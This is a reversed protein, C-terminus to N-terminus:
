QKMEEEEEEKSENPTDIELSNFSQIFYEVNIAESPPTTKTTPPTRKKPFFRFFTKPNSSSEGTNKKMDTIKKSIKEVIRQRAEMDKSEQDKKEDPPKAATTKIKICTKDKSTEFRPNGKISLM